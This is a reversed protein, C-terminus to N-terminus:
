GAPRQWTLGLGDPAFAVGRAEFAYRLRDAVSPRVDGGKEFKVITGLSAGSAEYLQAVTLGLVARAARCQEPSIIPPPM